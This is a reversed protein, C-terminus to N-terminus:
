KKKDNKGKNLTVIGEEMLYIKNPQLLKIFYPNHTIVILANESKKVKKLEKGINKLSKVDLGSDIEDLIGLKPNFLLYQLVESKKKEGGSFGKHLQRDLFSKRLNVIKMAEEVRKVFEEISAKPYIKKYVQWLFSGYRIGEIEVPIQMGVFIGRLFREEPKLRNIKEGIFFIKGKKIKYRPHGAVCMALSTKGSGNAGSLVVLEGANISLNANKVVVKNNIKVELGEVSLIKM